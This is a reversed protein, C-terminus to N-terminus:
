YLLHWFKIQLNMVCFSAVVNIETLPWEMM